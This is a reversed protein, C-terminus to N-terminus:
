FPQIYGIGVLALLAKAYPTEAQSIADSLDAIAEKIQYKNDLPQYKSGTVGVVRNRIGLGVSM